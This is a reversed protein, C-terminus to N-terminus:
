NSIQHCLLMSVAAKQEWSPLFQGSGEICVTCVKPNNKQAVSPLVSVIKFFIMKTFTVFWFDHMIVNYSMEKGLHLLERSCKRWLQVLRKKSAICLRDMSTDKYLSLIDYFGWHHECFLFAQWLWYRGGLNSLLASFMHCHIMKAEWYLRCWMQGWPWPTNLLVPM